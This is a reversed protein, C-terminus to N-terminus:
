HVARRLLLLLVQDLPHLQDDMLHLRPLVQLLPFFKNLAIPFSKLNFSTIGGLVFIFERSLFPFELFRLFVSRASSASPSLLLVLLLFAVPSGRFHRDRPELLLLGLRLLLVHILLEYRLVLTKSWTRWLRYLIKRVIVVRLSSLFDVLKSTILVVVVLLTVGLILGKEVHRILLIVLRHHDRM